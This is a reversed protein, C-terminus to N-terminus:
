RILAVIHWSKRRIRTPLHQSQDESKNSKRAGAARALIRGLLNVLCKGRSVQRPEKLCQVIRDDPRRKARRCGNRAAGVVSGRADLLIEFVVSDHEGCRLERRVGLAIPDHTHTINSDLADFATVVRKVVANLIAVTPEM